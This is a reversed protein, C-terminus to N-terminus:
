LLDPRGVAELLDATYLPSRRITEGLIVIPHTRLAAAILASPVLRRDYQCVAVVPAGAAHRTVQEEYTEWLGIDIPRDRPFSAEGAVRMASWGARQGEELLALGLELTRRPEFLGDQLYFDVDSIIILQGSAELTPLDAGACALAQRFRSSGAPPSIWLCRQEARLGHTVFPLVVAMQQDPDDFIACIHDGWSFHFDGYGFATPDAVAQPGVRTIPGATNGM